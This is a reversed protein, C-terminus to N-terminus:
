GSRSREVLEKSQKLGLGSAERVLKIATITRGEDLARAIDPRALLAELEAKPVPSAPSQRRQREIMHDGPQSRLARSLLVIFVLGILVLAWIPVFM